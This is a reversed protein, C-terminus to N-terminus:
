TTVMPLASWSRTYQNFMMVTGTSLGVLVPLQQYSEVAIQTFTMAVSVVPSAAWANSSNATILLLLSM